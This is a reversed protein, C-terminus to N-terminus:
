APQEALPEEQEGVGTARAALRASGDQFNDPM